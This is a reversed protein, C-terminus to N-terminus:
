LKIKGNEVLEKFRELGEDAKVFSKKVKSVNAEQEAKTPHFIKRYREAQVKDDLDFVVHKKNSIM